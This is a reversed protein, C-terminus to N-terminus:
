PHLTEPAVAEVGGCPRDAKLPQDRVLEPVGGRAQRNRGSGADLADLRHESVGAGHESQVAVAVQEAVLQARDGLPQVGGRADV